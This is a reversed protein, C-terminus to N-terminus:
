TQHKFYSAATSGSRSVFGIGRNRIASQRCVQAPRGITRFLALEESRRSSSPIGQENYSIANKRSSDLIGNQSIHYEPTRTNQAPAGFFATGPGRCPTYKARPVHSDPNKACFRPYCPLCGALLLSFRYRSPRIHLVFGIARLPAGLRHGGRAPALSRSDAGARLPAAPVTHRGCGLGWLAV